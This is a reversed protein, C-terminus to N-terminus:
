LTLRPSYQADAARANRSVGCTANLREMEDALKEMTFAARASVACAYVVDTMKGTDDAHQTAAMAEGLDAKVQAMMADMSACSQPTNDITKFHRRHATYARVHQAIATCVMHGQVKRRTGKVVEQVGQHLANTPRLDELAVSLNPTPNTNNM